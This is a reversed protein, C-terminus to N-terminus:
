PEIGLQKRLFADQPSNQKWYATRLRKKMVATSEIRKANKGWGSRYEERWSVIRHPFQTEFDMEFVRNTEPFVLSYRTVGNKPSSVSADAPVPTPSTHLLRTILLNPIVKIRGTPLSSPSLRARTWLEDELFVAPLNFREDGESEFYSFSAGSYGGRRRNLQMFVHGCWEQSTLTVKLPRPDKDAIPSFVSSMTSYRYIGTNFKKVLNLKLVKVADKPHRSPDDPKVHKSRSFDETVFILVAYGPNSAGYRAQNLQYSTIEAKGSYWYDAFDGEDAVSPFVAFLSAVIFVAIRKVFASM